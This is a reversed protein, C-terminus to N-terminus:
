QPLGPLQIQPLAPLQGGNLFFNAVSGLVAIVAAAIGTGALIDYTTGVKYDNEADNKVSSGAISWWDAAAKGKELDNRESSLASSGNFPESAKKGNGEAWEPHEKRLKGIESLKGYRDLGDLFPDKKADTKDNAGATTGETTPQPVTDAAQAVQVTSLMTTGAVVAALLRKKM